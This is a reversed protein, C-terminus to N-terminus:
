RHPAALIEGGVVAPAEDLPPVPGIAPTRYNSGDPLLLADAQTPDLNPPVPVPALLLEREMTKVVYGKGGPGVSVGDAINFLPADHDAVGDQDTDIPAWPIGVLQGDGRYELLFQQGDFTADGNADNAVSHTYPFQLPPDIPLAVGAADILGIWQNWPNQGTEWIWFQPLDWIAEPKPLTTADLVLPGSRMGALFVGSSAFESPALTVAAVNQNPDVYELTRDARDFRYTWPQTPPVTVFFVDGADVEAGTLQPRLGDMLAHFAVSTAGGFLAEDGSAVRETFYALDNAGFRAVVNGGWRPSRLRLALYLDLPITFPVIPQWSATAEVWQEFAFFDVGDFSVHLRRAPPAAPDFPEIWEFVENVADTLRITQRTCEILRGPAVRLTWTPAGAGAGDERVVDGDAYPLDGLVHLGGADLLAHGGNPLLLPVASRLAVRDGLAGLSADDVYLNYRRNAVRFSSRSSAVPPLADHQRVATTADFALRFTTALLGSDGNVVDNSREVRAVKALGSSQDAALDVAVQLLRHEDGVAPLLNPDGRLFFLEYGIRGTRPVRTKVLGCYDAAAPDGFPPTGAFNLTFVGFPNAATAPAFVDLASYLTTSLQTPGDLRDPIWAEVHQPLNRDRRVSRVIWPELSRATGLATVGAGAPDCLAADIQALYLGRNVLEGYRSQALECLVDNVVELEDAAADFVEQHAHDRFYDCGAPFQATSLRHVSSFSIADPDATLLAVSPPAILDDDGGRASSPSCGAHGLLAGLGFPAAIRLLWRVCGVMRAGVEVVDAM